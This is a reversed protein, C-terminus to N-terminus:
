RVWKCGLTGADHAASAANIMSEEAGEHDGSQLKQKAEEANVDHILKLDSCVQKLGGKGKKSLAYGKFMGLMYNGRRSKKRKAVSRKRKTAMTGGKDRFEERVPM